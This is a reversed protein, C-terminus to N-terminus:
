QVTRAQEAEKEVREREAKAKAKAKAQREEEWEHEWDMLMDQMWNPLDDRDTPAQRPARWGCSPEPREFWPRRDASFGGEDLDWECDSM